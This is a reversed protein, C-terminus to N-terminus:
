LLIIIKRNLIIQRLHQFRILTRITSRLVLSRGVVKVFRAHIRIRSMLSRVKNWNRIMVIRYMGEREEEVMLVVMIIDAQM